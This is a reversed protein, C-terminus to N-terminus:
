IEKEPLFTVGYTEAIRTREEWSHASHFEGLFETLMAPTTMMLLTAEEGVVDWSHPIGRPLFVFARPGAEFVADGCRVTITGEVVYFYEDERTHVHLPAGGTTRSEIVSFMGGTSSASAKVSEDFGAVGEGANLYYPSLSTM